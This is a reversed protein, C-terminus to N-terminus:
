EEREKEEKDFLQSRVIDALKISIALIRAYDKEDTATLMQGLYHIESQERTQKEM